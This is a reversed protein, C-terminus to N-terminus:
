AIDHAQKLTFSVEYEFLYVNPVVTRAFRLKEGIGKAVIVGYVDNDKGITRKVWGMYRAVQGIAKDPSNARKLEFVFFAGKNDTALIDILGVPTAYEVGDGTTDKYLTLQKGDIKVAGLNDALFDRLQAELAFTSSGDGDDDVSSSIVDDLQVKDQTGPALLRVETPTEELTWGVKQLGRRIEHSTSKAPSPDLNPPMQNPHLKFWQKMPHIEVGGDDRPIVVVHRRQLAM